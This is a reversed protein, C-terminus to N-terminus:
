DGDDIGLPVPVRRYRRYRESWKPFCREHFFVGQGQAKESTGIPNFGSLDRLVRAFVIGLESRPRVQQRCTECIYM